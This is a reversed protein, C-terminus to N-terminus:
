DSWGVHVGFDGSPSCALSGIEVVDVESDVATVVLGAVASAFHGVAVGLRQLAVFAVKGYREAGSAVFRSRRWAGWGSEM